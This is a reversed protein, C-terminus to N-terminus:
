KSIKKDNIKKDNGNLAQVTDIDETAGRDTVVVEILRQRHQSILQKAGADGTLCELDTFLDSPFIVPHGLAKGEDLINVPRVINQGSSRKFTGLLQGVMDSDVAPMDGLFIAVGLPKQSSRKQVEKIGCAISTGMGLEAHPNAVATFGATEVFAAIEPQDPAIVVVVLDFGCQAVNSFVSEIITRKGIDALLKNESGFRTSSGAALVIAAISPESM